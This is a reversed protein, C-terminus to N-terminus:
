PNQGYQCVREGCSARGTQVRLRELRLVFPSLLLNFLFAVALPIFVSKALYLAAFVLIIFIGTTSAVLLTRRTFGAVPRPAPAGDSDRGAVKREPQISMALDSSCVDSSWDSIRMEYATKQKFFFFIVFCM